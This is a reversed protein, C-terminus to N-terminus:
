LQGRFTTPREVTIGKSRLEELFDDVDKGEMCSLRHLKRRKVGKLYVYIGSPGMRWYVIKAIDEYRYRRSWCRFIANRCVLETDTLEPYGGYAQFILVSFVIFFLLLRIIIRMPYMTSYICVLLMYFVLPIYIPSLTTLYKHKM